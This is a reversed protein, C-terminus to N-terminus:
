VAGDTAIGLTAVQDPSLPQFYYFGQVEQCGLERLCEIQDSTEACEAVVRVGMRRGLDIVSQAIAADVRNTCINQVFSGDIKLCDVPLSRLISLSSYGTGFDDLAVKIGRRRIDAIVQASKELDDIVASETVEVTLRDPAIREEAVISALKDALDPQRLEMASINISIPLNADSAAIQACATRAVWDGLAVVAGCEEAIEMFEDPGVIGTEPRNWRLLAEMGSISGDVMNIQPQYFLRLDGQGPAAKLDAEFKRRMEVARLMAPDFFNFGQGGGGKRQYLAMDANRLCHEPTCDETDFIAIGISAGVDVPLDEMKSSQAIADLINQAVSAAGLPSRLNNLAVAFEDGGIRAAFDSGRINERICDAVAKLVDDGALHGLTDNVQKFNDLDIYLLAVDTGNRRNIAVVSSLMDMFTTRNLLSTLPDTQALDRIMTEATRRETVDIATVIISDPEGNRGHIPCGSLALDRYQGPERGAIRTEFSSAMGSKWVALENEARRREPIDFHSSFGSNEIEGPSDLGLFRCMQFNAHVTRGDPYIQWVGVNCNEAVAEYTAGEDSFIQCTEELQDPPRALHQALKFVNSIEAEIRATTSALKYNEEELEAVDRRLAHNRTRRALSHRIARELTEPNLSDKHLYDAAGSNLAELDLNPSRGGTMLIMPASVSRALDAVVEIGEGDPLNQDVLIVDFADPAGELTERFASVTDVHTLQHPNSPISELFTEVLFADAPSDDLLLIRKVDHGVPDVQNM